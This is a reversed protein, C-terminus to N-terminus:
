SKKSVKFYFIGDNISFSVLHSGTADVEAVSIAFHGEQDVLRKLFVILLQDKFDDLVDAHLASGGTALDVGRALDIGKGM